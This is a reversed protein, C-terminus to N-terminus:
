RTLGRWNDVYETSGWARGPLGNYVTSVIAKLHRENVSDARLVAGSLDNRLVAELFSGPDTGYPLWLLLSEAIAVPPRHDEIARNLREIDPHM